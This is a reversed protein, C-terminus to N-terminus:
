GIKHKKHKKPRESEKKADDLTEIELGGENAVLRYPSLSGAIIGMVLVLITYGTFSWVKCWFKYWWYKM